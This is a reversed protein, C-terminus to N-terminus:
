RKPHLTKERQAQELPQKQLSSVGQSVSSVATGVKGNLETIVSDGLDIASIFKAIRGISGNAAQTVMQSEENSSGRKGNRATAEAVKVSQHESTASAGAIMVGENMATSETDVRSDSLSMIWLRDTHGDRQKARDVIFQGRRVRATAAGPTKVSLTYAYLGSKVAEGNAQRLVWNLEPETVAGSDYVLQGAQDFIQLQMEAIAKQATFRVQEQEIIIVVDQANTNTAQAEQQKDPAPQAQTLPICLWIFLLMMITRKLTKM